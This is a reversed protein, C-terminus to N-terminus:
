SDSFLFLRMCRAEVAASAEHAFVKVSVGRGGLKAPVVLPLRTDSAIAVQLLIDSSSLVSCLDPAVLLTRACILRTVPCRYSQADIHNSNSVSHVCRLLEEQLYQENRSRVVDALKHLGRVCPTCIPLWEHGPCHADVFADVVDLLRGAVKVSAASGVVLIVLSAPSRTWLLASAGSPLALVFQTASISMANLHAEFEAMLVAVLNSLFGPPHRHPSLRSAFEAGFLQLADDNLTKAFSDSARCAVTCPICVCCREIRSPVLVHQNATTATSRMTTLVSLQELLGLLTPLDDAAALMGKFESTPGGAQQPISTLRDLITQARVEGNVIVAQTDVDALTMGSRIGDFHSSFPSVLVSIAQCLWEPDIIFTSANVRIVDGMRILNHLCWEAMDEKVGCREILLSMVQQQSLWPPRAPACSRWNAHLDELYAQCRFESAFAYASALLAPLLETRSNKANIARFQVLGAHKFEAKLSKLVHDCWSGVLGRDVTDAHTGVIFTAIRLENLDALAVNVLTLWSRLEDLAKEPATDHNMDPLRITVVVIAPANLFHRDTGYLQTQGPLERFVLTLPKGDRKEQWEGFTINRSRDTTTPAALNRLSRHITTKGAKFPGMFLLQVISCPVQQQSARLFALLAGKSGFLRDEEAIQQSQAGILPNGKARLTRLKPLAGIFYPLTSFLNASVDLQQLNNLNGFASPLSQLRNRSIDLSELHVLQSLPAPITTLQCQSLSVNPKVCNRLAM